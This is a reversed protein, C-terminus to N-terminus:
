LKADGTGALEAPTPPRMLLDIAQWLTFSLPYFLAPGILAIAAGVFVVVMVDLGLVVTVLISLLIASFTLIINATIAGLEFAVDGRRYGHGCRRCREQRKFWGLFYARPDGCWACRRTVGRWMLEVGGPFDTIPTLAPVGASSGSETV